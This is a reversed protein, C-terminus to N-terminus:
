DKKTKNYDMMYYKFGRKIMDQDQPDDGYPPLPIKEIYQEGRGANHVQTRYPQWEPKSTGAALQAKGAESLLTYESFLYFAKGTAGFHYNGLDPATYLEGQFSFQTQNEKGKDFANALGYITGTNKKLDWDGKNKM